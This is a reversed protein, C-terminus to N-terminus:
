KKRRYIRVINTIGTCTDIRLYSSVFVFRLNFNFNLKAPVSHKIVLLVAAFASDINNLTESLEIGVAVELADIAVISEDIATELVAFELMLKTGMETVVVAVVVIFLLVTVKEDLAHVKGPALM